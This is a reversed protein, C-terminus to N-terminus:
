ARAANREGARRPQVPASAPPGEWVVVVVTTVPSEQAAM